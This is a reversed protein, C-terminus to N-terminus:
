KEAGVIKKWNKVIKEASMHQIDHITYGEKKIRRKDSTRRRGIQEQRRKVMKRSKGTLYSRGASTSKLTRYYERAYAARREM